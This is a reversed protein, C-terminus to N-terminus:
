WSECNQTLTQKGKIFLITRIKLSLIKRGTFECLLRLIM